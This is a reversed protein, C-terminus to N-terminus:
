GIEYRISIIQRRITSNNEVTTIYMLTELNADEQYSDGYLIYVKCTSCVYSINWISVCM